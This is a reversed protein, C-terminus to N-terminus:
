PVLPQNVVRRPPSLKTISRSGLVAAGLIINPKGDVDHLPVAISAFLPDPSIVPEVYGLAINPAGTELTLRGLRSLINDCWQGGLDGALWTTPDAPYREALRTGVLRYRLGGDKLLDLMFMDQLVSTYQEPHFHERRPNGHERLITFWFDALVTIARRACCTLEHDALTSELMEHRVPPQGEFDVARRIDNM